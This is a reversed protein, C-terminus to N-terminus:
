IRSALVARTTYHGLPLLKDRTLQPETHTTSCTGLQDANVELWVAGCLRGVTGIDQIDAPETVRHELYDRSEEPLVRTPEDGFYLGDGQLWFAGSTHKRLPTVM